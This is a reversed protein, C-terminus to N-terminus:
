MKWDQIISPSTRHQGLACLHSRLAIGFILFDQGKGRGSDNIKVHKEFGIERSKWGTKAKGAVQSEKWVEVQLRSTWM